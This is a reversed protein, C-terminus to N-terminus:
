HWFAHILLIIHSGVTGDSGRVRAGATAAAAIWPVPWLTRLCRTRDPLGSLGKTLLMDYECVKVALELLADGASKACGGFVSLRMPESGVDGEARNRGSAVLLCTMGGNSDGRRGWLASGRADLAKCGSERRGPNWCCDCDIEQVVVCDCITSCRCANMPLSSCAHRSARIAVCSVNLVLTMAVKSARSSALLERYSSEALFRPSRSIYTRLNSSLTLLPSTRKLLTAQQCRDLFASCCSNSVWTILKKSINSSDKCFNCWLVLLSSTCCALLEYAMDTSRRLEFSLIRSPLSPLSCVQDLWMEAAGYM